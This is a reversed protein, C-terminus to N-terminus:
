FSINAGVMLVRPVPYHGWDIGRELASGGLDPDMGSFKTLTFLNEGGIYIRVRSLNIKECVSNPLNFGLQASQLRLYSGDEIYYDSYRFNQNNDRAALRPQTNSTGEGDWANYLIERYSNYIGNGAHTYPKVANLVDNGYTGSFLMSLDFAKYEMNITLGYSFDPEPNGIVQRDEGNITGDGNLDKFKMDGPQALPQLINGFEDTYNIIEKKNQFIGNTVWGYFEGATGGEVTRTLMDLRQHNGSWIAEGSALKTLTSNARSLNMSLNLNFDSGIKERYGIVMEYGNTELSGVNSWPTSWVSGLYLPISKEMLMDKSTRKFYDLAVTLKQDFFGLDAGLNFDEVTEWKLDPNGVTEPATGVSLNKDAGFIYYTKGLTTLTANNPINQNGLQGWGARIKLQSLWNVSNMFEEEAVNWAGSVSPFYGWQNSKPFRSSADARFSATLLYKDKYSYNLRGLYSIQTNSYNSGGSWFADTAADLYRLDVHNSPLSKASGSLTRHEFSEATFGGAVKLSHDGFDKSYTFINNWTYDTRNNHSRGVSNVDNKDTPEIYYDPSFWNNEWSSLYFAFKTEFQLGEVLDFRAFLNGVTRLYDTVDFNRALAGMPNGGDTWTTPHFISYENKGEQEYEPLYVPIVPETLLGGWILDPGNKTKDKSISINEGITIRDTIKYETNLRLTLREYGGGKVVGDQNFYSLGTSIKLDETGKNINLSYNQIPAVQTVEDWWDTGDGLAEPDAFLPALGSNENAKNAILAYETANALKPKKAVSQVSYTGDFSINTKGEKAKKTEIIIVGNSARSGFIASASADKLVQVNEIDKPNLWSIDELPVDDVVYLPNNNNITSIGRVLISAEAGPYGGNSTVQVGALQGQLAQTLNSVNRKALEEGKVTSIAGTLDKKKVVGYGVAIVEELGVIDETLLIDLVNQNGVTVEDTKFGVYSFVLVDTSKASISFNGDMDTVTGSSTGKIVISVGPLSESQSSVKGTIRRTEQAHIVGFCIFSLIIAALLKRM